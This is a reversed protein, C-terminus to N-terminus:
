RTGICVLLREDCRSKEMGFFINLHSVGGRARSWARKKPAPSGRAALPAVPGARFDSSDLLKRRQRLKRLRAPCRRHSRRDDASDEIWGPLFFLFFLLFFLFFLCIVVFFLRAIREQAIVALNASHAELPDLSL